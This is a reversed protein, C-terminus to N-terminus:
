VIIIKKGKNELIAEVAFQLATSHNNTTAWKEIYYLHVVIILYKKL